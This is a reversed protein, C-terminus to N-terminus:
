YILKSVFNKFNEDQILVEELEELEQLTKLPFNYTKFISDENAVIPENKESNAKMLLM